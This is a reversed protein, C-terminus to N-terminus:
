MESLLCHLCREHHICLYVYVFRLIHKFKSHHIIWFYENIRKKTYKSNWYMTCHSEYNYKYLVYENNYTSATYYYLQYYQSIHITCIIWLLFVNSLCISISNGRLLLSYNFLIIVTVKQTKKPMLPCRLLVASTEYASAFSM